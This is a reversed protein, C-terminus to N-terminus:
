KYLVARFGYYYNANGSAINRCAAPYNVGTDSYNGGRGVFSGYGINNSNETTWELVNGAMDYINNVVYYGTTHRTNNSVDNYWGNGTSDIDYGLNPENASNDSSNVIWQMTTDWCAGSILSSKVGDETNVMSAAVIISDARTIHNWVGKGSKSLPKISGDVATKTTLSNNETTGEIGAEYRAIYFGGYTNVSTEIESASTGEEGTITLNNQNYKYYLDTTNTTSPLTKKFTEVKDGAKVKTQDTVCPVWVFENGLEDRIVYGSNWTGEGETHLFGSPIYPNDYSGGAIPGKIVVKGENEIFNTIKNLIDKEEEQAIQMNESAEKAKKAIGNEDLVLSISVGALIVLVIITIVLAILTIGNNNRTQIEKKNM